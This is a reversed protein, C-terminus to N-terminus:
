FNIFVIFVARKVKVGHEAYYDATGMSGYLKYNMKHLTRACQLLESKHKYTGVSLLVSREPIIFGTSIMAKLYAEFRNDGFCAVEGTSAMEVGLM